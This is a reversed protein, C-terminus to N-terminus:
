ERTKSQNLRYRLFERTVGLRRATASINHGTERLVEDILDNIVSDITFGEEPVRWIPNRWGAVAHPPPAGLSELELVHGRAFILEGEIVHALERANGPWGYALLRSEGAPSFSMDKLRHRRAIRELLHKALALIDLGRERLPPLTLHLLHLRHYLDERFSGAQVLDSLPENSAAILRVDV